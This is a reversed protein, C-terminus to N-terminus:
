VGGPSIFACYTIFEPDPQEATPAEHQRGLKVRPVGCFHGQHVGKDAAITNWEIMGPAVRIAKGYRKSIMVASQDPLVKIQEDTLGECDGTMPDGGCCLTGKSDRVGGYIDHAHAIAVASLVAVFFALWGVWRLTFGIIM